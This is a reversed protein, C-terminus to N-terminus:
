RGTSCDGSPWFLLGLPPLMLPDYSGIALHGDGPLYPSSIRNVMNKGFRGPGIRFYRNANLVSPMGKAAQAASYGAASELAFPLLGVVIGATKGVNYATSQYNVGDDIGWARRLLIPLLFADGFGVAADGAIGFGPGSGTCQPGPPTGGGGDGTPAQDPRSSSPPNPQGWTYTYRGVRMNDIWPDRILGETQDGAPPGVAFNLSRAWAELAGFEGSLPFCEETGDNSFPRQLLCVRYDLGSRDVFKLPNNAAYTYRNLRHPSFLRDQTIALPDPSTFRDTVPALYRAQLYDVALGEDRRNGAFMFGESSSTAGIEVGFPAFDHRRLQEGLADTVLRVSGIADQHYYVVEDDPLQGAGLQTVDVTRGAVTVQAFRSTANTNATYAYSVEGDGMGSQPSTATLFQAGPNASWACVAPNDRILLTLEGAVPPVEPQAPTVAPVPCGVSWTGKLDWGQQAGSLSQVFQYVSKAGGFSLPFVIPVKLTRTNGSATVEASAPLLTCRSNQLTPTSGITGSTWYYDDDNQLYLTQSPVDYRLLCRPVANWAPAILLWMSSIDDAGYTDTYTAEFTAQLHHGSIPTVGTNTLELAPVTWTGKQEFGSYTWGSWSTSAMYINKAGSYAPKFAVRINVVLTNGGSGNVNSEGTYIRCQSNELITGSGMAANPWGTGEDNWLWILNSYPTYTFVCSNTSHGNAHILTWAEAIDGYGAPSSYQLSFTQVIGTQGTPSVGVNVPTIGPQVSVPGGPLEEVHQYPFYGYGNMAYWYCTADCIEWVISGAAYYTV